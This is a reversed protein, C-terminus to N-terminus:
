HMDCGFFRDLFRRYWDALKGNHRSFGADLEALSQAGPKGANKGLVRKWDALIRATIEPHFQLAMTRREYQFAQHEFVDGRALLEAGVPCEFGQANGCPAMMGDPMLDTGAKTVRLPYYGLAVLGDPHYGVRAGLHHAILQAGLCIGLLPVGSGMVTDVFALENRLYPFQRTDTVFQPGGGIIVGAVREDLMPLPEGLDPRVTQITFGRQALHRAGNDTDVPDHHELLVIRRGKELSM